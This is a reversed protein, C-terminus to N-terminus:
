CEWILERELGTSLLQGYASALGSLAQIVRPRHSHPQFAIRIWKIGRNSIIGCRLGRLTVALTIRCPSAIFYSCPRGHICFHRPITLSLCFCVSRFQRSCISKMELCKCVYLSTYFKNCVKCAFCTFVCNIRLSSNM